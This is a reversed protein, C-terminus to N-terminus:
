FIFADPCHSPAGDYTFPGTLASAGDKGAKSVTFGDSRWEVNAGKETQSPFGPGHDIDDDEDIFKSWEQEDLTKVSALWRPGADELVLVSEYKVLSADKENMPYDGDVRDHKTTISLAGVGSGLEVPKIKTVYFDEYIYGVGPTYAAGLMYSYWADDGLVVLITHYTSGFEEGPQYNFYTVLHDGVKVLKARGQDDLCEADADAGAYLKCAEEASEPIDAGAHKTFDCQETEVDGALKSQISELREKVIKNGPRVGLSETYATAAADYEGRAEAIRGLNYLSAGKVNHDRAFRVSDRTAVAARDLQADKFAAWGLESLLRANNPDIELADEFSAIGEKYRKSQVHKRGAKLLAKIEGRAKKVSAADPAPRTVPAPDDVLEAVAAEEKAPKADKAQAGAGQKTTPAEGAEKGGARTTSTPPNSSPEPARQPSADCGVICSLALMPTFLTLLKSRM